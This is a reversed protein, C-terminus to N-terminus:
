DVNVNIILEITWIEEINETHGSPLNNVYYHTITLTMKEENLEYRYTQFGVDTFVALQNDELTYVAKEATGGDYYQVITDSETVEWKQPCRVYSQVEAAKKHTKRGRRGDTNKDITIQAVEWVGPQLKDSAILTKCAFLLILLIATKTKM